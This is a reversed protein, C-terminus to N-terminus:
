AILYRFFQSYWSKEFCRLIIRKRLLCLHLLFSLTILSYFVEDTHNSDCDSKFEFPNPLYNILSRQLMAEEFWFALLINITAWKLACMTYTLDKERNGKPKLHSRLRSVRALVHLIQWSSKESSLNFYAAKTKLFWTFLYGKDSYEFKFASLGQLCYQESWNVSTLIIWKHGHRTGLM